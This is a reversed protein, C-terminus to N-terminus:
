SPELDKRRFDNPRGVNPRCMFLKFSVQRGILQIVFSLIVDHRVFTPQGFHKQGPSM